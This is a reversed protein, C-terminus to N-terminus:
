PGHLVPGCLYRARTSADMRRQLCGAAPAGATRTREAVFLELRACRRSGLQLRVIALRCCSCVTGLRELIEQLSMATVRAAVLELALPLGDLRTCIGIVAEAAADNLVLRPRAAMAREVFLRTAPYNQLEAPSLRENPAPSVLPRVHWVSERPIRLRERSTTLLRVKPCGVLIAEALGACTEILHECNDLVLLLDSACLYNVIADSAAKGSAPSLKFVSAVAPPLQESTQVSAVDVFWVGNIFRDTLSGAIGLALDTKGVGAPGTLTVLHGRAELLLRRVTSADDDRGILNVLARLNNRVM